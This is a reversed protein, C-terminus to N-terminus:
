QKETMSLDESIWSQDQILRFTKVVAFTTIRFYEYKLGYDKSSLGQLVKEEIDRPSIDDANQSFVYEAVQSMVINILTTEPHFLSKYLTEINTIQYGIAGNITITKLDKSTLTQMPMSAVRLRNEQVYISDLYPIRFHIGKKLRKIKKGYRVRIGDQWPQVIVWIKVSNLLYEIFQQVQNM